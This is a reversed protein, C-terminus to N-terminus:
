PIIEDIEGQKVGLDKLVGVLIECIVNFDDNSCNM